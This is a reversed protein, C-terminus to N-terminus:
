SATLKLVPGFLVPAPSFPRLDKSVTERGDSKLSIIAKEAYVCFVLCGLDTYYM